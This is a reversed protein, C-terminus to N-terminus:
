QCGSTPLKNSTANKVTSVFRKDADVPIEIFTKGGISYSTGRQWDPKILRSLDRGEGVSQTVLPGSAAASSPYSAEYWAKAQTINSPLPSAGKSDCKCSNIIGAILLAAIALNGRSFISRFHRAKM